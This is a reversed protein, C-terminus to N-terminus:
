YGNTTKNPFEVPIDDCTLGIKARDIATTHLCQMRTLIGLILNQQEDNKLRHADDADIRDLHPIIVSDITTRIGRVESTTQAAERLPTVVNRGWWALLAGVLLYVIRYRDIIRGIRAVLDTDTDRNPADPGGQRLLSNEEM